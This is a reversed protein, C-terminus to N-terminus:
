PTVTIAMIVSVSSGLATINYVHKNIHTTVKIEMFAFNYGM